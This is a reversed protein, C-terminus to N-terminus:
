SMKGIVVNKGIHWQVCPPHSCQATLLPHKSWWAGSGVEIKLLDM